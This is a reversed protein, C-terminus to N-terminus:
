KDLCKDKSMESYYNYTEHNCDGIWTDSTSEHCFLATKANTSRNDVKYCAKTNAGGERDDALAEINELVLASANYKREKLCTNYGALTIIAVAFIASLTKKNKM